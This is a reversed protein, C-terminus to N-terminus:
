APPPALGRPGARRTREGPCVAALRGATGPSVRILESGSAVDDWEVLAVSLGRSAANLAIGCGTIGGGIVLVDATGDAMKTLASTRTRASFELMPGPYYLRPTRDSPGVVM